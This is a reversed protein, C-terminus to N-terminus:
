NPSTNLRTISLDDFFSAKDTDYNWCYIKLDKNHLKEDINLEIKIKEWEGESYSATSQHLYFEDSNVAQVVISSNNHESKRWVEFLYKEGLQVESIACSFGYKNNELKVSYLGSRAFENSKHDAGEFRQNLDNIFYFGLSDSLEANCTYQIISDSSPKYKVNYFYQGLQDFSKTLNWKTDVQRNLGNFKTQLSKELEKDGSYFTFSNYKKLLDIFSFGNAWSNFKNNWGHHFYINPYLKNLDVAYRLAMKHGCWAMGYFIGYEKFPTGFYNPLVLIPMDSTFNEEVYTLSERYMKDRNMKISHYNLILKPGTNYVIIAICVFIAIKILKIPKNKLKQLFINVIFYWAPIMLLYNVTLYYNKMQKSVLLTLIVLTLFIGVLALFNSNNQKKLKTRPIINLLVTFATALFTIFYFPDQLFIIKMNAKFVIPDIITSKGSGYMGSNFFNMLYWDRFSVWYFWIPFSIIFFAIISYLVYVLRHKADKLVFFPVLAVPVYVLKSSAIFGIIVSFAIIYKNLWTSNHFKNNQIYIITIAILLIVGISVMNEVMIRSTLDLLVWKTFPILQLFIGNIISKTYYSVVFGLFILILALLYNTFAIIAINYLDPNKMVDVNLSDSTTRLSYLVKITLASILQSPTGPGQVHAPSEVNCINMGNFLYAYEPDTHYMHYNTNESKQIFSIIVFFAPILLLPLYKFKLHKMKM